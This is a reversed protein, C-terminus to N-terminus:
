ANGPIAYAIASTTSSQPVATARTRNQRHMFINKNIQRIYMMSVLMTSSDACDHACPMRTRGVNEMRQFAGFFAIFVLLKWWDNGPHAMPIGPVARIIM